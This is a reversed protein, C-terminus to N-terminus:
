GDEIDRKSVFKGNIRIPEWKRAITLESEMGLYKVALEENQSQLRRNIIFLLWVCLSVAALALWLFLVSAPIETVATIFTVADGSDGLDKCLLKNWQGIQCAM